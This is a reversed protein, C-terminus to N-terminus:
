RALLLPAKPLLFIKGDKQKWGFLMEKNLAHIEKDFNIKGFM